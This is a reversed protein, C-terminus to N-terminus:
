PSPPERRLTDHGLPERVAYAMVLMGAVMLLQLATM